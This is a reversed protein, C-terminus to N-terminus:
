LHDADSGWEQCILLECVNGSSSSSGLLGIIEPETPLVAILRRLKRALVLRYAPRLAKRFISRVKHAAHIKLSECIPGIWIPHEVLQQILLEM